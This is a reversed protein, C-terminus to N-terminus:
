LIGLIISFFNLFNFFFFMMTAENWSSIPRSLCFFLSCFKRTRFWKKGVRAQSNGFFFLLFIWFILFCCGLKMKLRFPDLYATFSLFLKRTKSFVWGLRSLKSFFLLFILFIPFFLGSKMELWFPDPSASFSLFFIEREFGNNRSGLQLIGLLISFLKFFILFCWRAKM